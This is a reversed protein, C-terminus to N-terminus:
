GTAFGHMITYKLKKLLPTLFSTFNVTNDVFKKQPNLLLNNLQRKEM